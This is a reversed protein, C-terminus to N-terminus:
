GVDSGVPLSSLFRELARRGARSSNGSPFRARSPRRQGEEKGTGCIRKEVNYGRHISRIEVEM